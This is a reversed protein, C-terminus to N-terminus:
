NALNKQVANAFTQIPFPKNLLKVDGESLEKLSLVQETHGSMLLIKVPVALQRLERYLEMGNMRPMIVDSVVLQVQDVNEKFANLGEIGDAAEIVSYGLGKLVASLMSRVSTDDEVLLITENGQTRAPQVIRSNGALEIQSKTRDPNASDSPFYMEFSTGRPENSVARIHSGNQKLAGYVLSLGLGTGKGREKTTFFPDFIQQIDEPEIGCGNDKITLKVYNGGEKLGVGLAQKDSLVTNGTILSLTGHGNMADRANIAVNLIAHELQSQDVNILWLSEEIETIISIEEGMISEFLKWSSDLVKNLNLVQPRNIQKSSLDLLQNSLRAAKHSAELIISLQERTQQESDAFAVGIEAHGMIVTMYNNFDHAIGGALRGITEMKKSQYLQEALSKRENEAKRISRIDRMVVSFHETNGVDDKHCILVQSSPILTDDGSVLTIESQYTGHAIASPIGIQLFETASEESYFSLLRISELKDGKTINLLSYGADNLSIIFGDIDIITVLDTTCDAIDLLHSQKSAVIRSMRQVNWDRTALTESENM